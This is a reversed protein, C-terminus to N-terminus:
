EPRYMISQSQYLITPNAKIGSQVLAFLALPFHNLSVYSAGGRTMIDVHISCKWNLKRAERFFSMTRSGINCYNIKIFNRMLWCIGDFMEKLLLDLFFNCIPCVLVIMTKKTMRAIFGVAKDGVQWLNGLSFSFNMFM